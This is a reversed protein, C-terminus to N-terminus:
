SAEFAAIRRSLRCFGAKEVLLTQYCIWQIFHSESDFQTPM